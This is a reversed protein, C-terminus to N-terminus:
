GATSISSSVLEQMLEEISVIGLTESGNNVVAIPRKSKRMIRLSEIMSKDSGIVAMQRVFSAPFASRYGDDSIKLLDRAHVYGIIENGAASTIPVRVQGTKAFIQELHSTAVGLKATAINDMAKTAQVVPAVSFEIVDQILAGDDSDIAGEETSIDILRSLESATHTTMIEDKPEVGLARVGGNALANLLLAFPRFIFLYMRYPIALWRLTQAPAALAINKPVMEGLVLHLFTFVSLSVTVGILTATEESVSSGIVSEIISEFAPEGLRGLALSAITIGLQAGALQMSLDGMADLSIKDTRKGEAAGAEFDSRRAALIAFEYAVYIGNLVILFASAILAISVVTWNIPGSAILDM